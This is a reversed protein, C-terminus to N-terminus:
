VDDPESSALASREREADALATRRREAIMFECLAGLNAFYFRRRNRVNDISGRWRPESTGDPENWMRVLFTIQRRDSM